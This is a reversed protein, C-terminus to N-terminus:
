KNGGETRDSGALKKGLKVLLGGTILGVTLTALTRLTDM